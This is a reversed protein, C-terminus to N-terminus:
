LMKVTFTSIVVNIIDSGVVTVVSLAIAWFFMNWQLKLNSINKEYMLDSTKYLAKTIEEYSIKSMESLKMDASMIVPFNYKEFVIYLPKNHAINTALDKFFERLGINFYNQSLLKAVNHLPIGIKLMEHVMRFLVIGDAYSQTKLIKYLYRPKYLHTYFYAGFFSVIFILSFVFLITVLTTEFYPPIGLFQVMADKKGSLSLIDKELIGMYILLAYFTASITALPLFIPYLMHKILNSNSSELTNILKLGTILNPANQVLGYQFDSLFKHKHLIADITERGLEFDKIASQLRKKFNGNGKVQQEYLIFAQRTNSGSELKTILYDLLFKEYPDTFINM